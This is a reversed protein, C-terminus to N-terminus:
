RTFISNGQSPGSGTQVVNGLWTFAGNNWVCASNAYINNNTLMGTAYVTGGAVCLSRVEGYDNSLRALTGNTWIVPVGPDIMASVYCDSGSVFMSGFECMYGTAQYTWFVDSNKWVVIRSDMWEGEGRTAGAAYIDTGSVCVVRIETDAISGNLTMPTGNRWVRAQKSSTATSTAREYGGVILDDGLFCASFAEGRNTGLTVTDAVGASSWHWVTARPGAATTATSAGVVRVLNNTGGVTVGRAVSSAASGGIMTPAQDNVWFAAGSGIYGAVYINGGQSYVSHAESGATAGRLVRGTGNTWLAAFADSWGDDTMQGAVYVPSSVRVACTGFTGSGDRATATITAQGLAVARVLGAQTVTAIETDSSAYTVGRNSATTPLVTASLTATAGPGGLTVAAPSLTISTVLIPAVVVDCTDTKGGDATAVTIVASGPLLGLVFGGGSVNAVAPNSSRWVVGKNGADAPLVTASLSFSDGHTVTKQSESITVATPRIPTVEVLCSGTFNGDATKVTVTATGARLGRVTVTTDTSNPVAAVAPDDSAWSVAKTDANAPDITATLGASGGVELQLRGPLTVGAAAVKGGIDWEGGGCAAMSVALAAATFYALINKV